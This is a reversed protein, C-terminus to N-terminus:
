AVRLSPGLRAEEVVYSGRVGDWEKRAEMIELRKGFWPADVVLTEMEGGEGCVDFGHRLSLEKLEGAADGDLVRGLWREDLGMAAVATVVVEMGVEIVEDLLEPSFRGWLPSVHDLGLEGCIADVRKKQYSSAIAGTVVGDIDLAGLAQKLDELEKEKEGSSEVTVLGLGHAEALLPVLHLNVTHFMWSDERRPKVTVLTVLDGERSALHSAYTSDKGGSFLSALRM